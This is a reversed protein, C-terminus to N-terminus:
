LKDAVFGQDFDCTREEGRDRQHAAFGDFAGAVAISNEHQRALGNPTLPPEDRKTCPALTIGTM